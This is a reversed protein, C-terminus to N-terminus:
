WRLRRFLDDNVMFSTTEAKKTVTKTPRNEKTVADDLYAFESNHPGDHHHVGFVLVHEPKVIGVVSVM